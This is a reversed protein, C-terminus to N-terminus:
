RLLIALLLATAAVDLAIREFAAAEVAEVRVIRMQPLPIPGDRPQPDMPRGAPLDPGMEDLGLLAGELRQGRRGKREEAGALTLTLEQDPRDIM